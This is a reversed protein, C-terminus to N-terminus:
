STPSAYLGVIESEALVHGRIIYRFKAYTTTDDVGLKDLDLAYVTLHYHHAADGPPAAGQSRGSSTTFPLLFVM